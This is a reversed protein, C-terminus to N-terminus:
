LRGGLVIAHYGHSELLGDRFQLRLARGPIIVAAREPLYVWVDTRKSKEAPSGLLMLVEYKSMGVKLKDAQRTVESFEYRQNGRPITEGTDPDVNVCSATALLGLFALSLKLKHNM